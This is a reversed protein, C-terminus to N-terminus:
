PWREASRRGAIRDAVAGAPYAAVANAANHISYLLVALAAASTLTRGPHLLDTARLVLLTPAFNGLGYLGYAVALRRFAGHPLGKLSLRAERIPTRPTEQVPVTANPAPGDM